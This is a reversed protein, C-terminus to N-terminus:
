IRPIFLLLSFAAAAAFIGLIFATNKRGAASYFSIGILALSWILMIGELLAMAYAAATKIFFPSPNFTFWYKGFVAYEVPTLVLFSLVVPAYSYIQISYLDKFRLEADISKGIIKLLFSIGTILLTFAAGFLLINLFVKDIAETEQYFYNKLFISNLFLKFSVIITLFLIYNKHEAFIIRKFTSVPSDFLSWVTGWFDINVVRERLYSKCNACNLNHQPNNTGCVTCAIFNGPQNM